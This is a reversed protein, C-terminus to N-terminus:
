LMMNLNQLWSLYKQKGQPYNFIIVTAVEAQLSKKLKPNMVIDEDLFAFYEAKLFKLDRCMYEMRKIM